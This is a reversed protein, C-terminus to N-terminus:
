RFPLKKFLNSTKSGRFDSLILVIYSFISKTFKRLASATQEPHKPVIAPVIQLKSSPPFSKRGNRVFVTGSVLFREWFSNGHFM